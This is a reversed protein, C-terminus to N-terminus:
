LHIIYLKLSLYLTTISDLRNHIVQIQSIIKCNKLYFCHNFHIILAYMLSGLLMKLFIMIMIKFKVNCHTWSHPTLNNHFNNVLVKAQHTWLIVSNSFRTHTGRSIQIYKSAKNYEKKEKNFNGWNIASWFFLFFFINILVNILVELGLYTSLTQSTESSSQSESRSRQKQWQTIHLVHSIILPWLQFTFYLRLSLLKTAKNTLLRQGTLKTPPTDSNMWAWTKLKSKLQGM